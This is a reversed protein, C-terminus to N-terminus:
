IILLENGRNSLFFFLQFFYNDLSIDKLQIKSWCVCQFFLYYKRSVKSRFQRILENM